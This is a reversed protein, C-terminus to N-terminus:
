SCNKDLQQGSSLTSSLLHGMVEAPRVAAAAASSSGSGSGSGNDDSGSIDRKTSSAKNESTVELQNGELDELLSCTLSTSHM